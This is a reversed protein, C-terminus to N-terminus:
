WIRSPAGPHACEFERNRSRPDESAPSGSHGFLAAKGRDQYGIHDAVRLEHAAVLGSRQRLEFCQAGLDDLGLDGLVSSPQELGHTVAEQDLEGASNLRHAAGLRYLFGVVSAAQRQADANMDAVDHDLAVVQHAVAHIDRRTDLADRLGTADGDCARHMLLHAVLEIKAEHVLALDLQLVDLSRHLHKHDSAHLDVTLRGSQWQRSM